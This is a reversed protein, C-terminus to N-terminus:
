RQRPWRGIANTQPIKVSLYHPRIRIGKTSCRFNHGDKNSWGLRFGFLEKVHAAIFSLCRLTSGMNTQDVFLMYQRTGMVTIDSFTEGQPKVPQWTLPIAWGVWIKRVQGFKVWPPKLNGKRGGGEGGFSFQFRKNDIHITNPQKIPEPIHHHSNPQSLIPQKSSTSPHKTQTPPPPTPKIQSTSSQKTQTTPQPQTTPLHCSLNPPQLPPHTPLPPTELTWHSSHGHNPFFGPYYFPSPHYISAFPPPHYPPPPPLPPPHPLPLPLASMSENESLSYNDKFPLNCCCFVVKFQQTFNPSQYM